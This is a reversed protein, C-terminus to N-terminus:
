TCTSHTQGTRQWGWTPYQHSEFLIADYMISFGPFEQTHESTRFGKFTSSALVQHLAKARWQTTSGRQQRELVPVTSLTQSCNYGRTSYPNQTCLNLILTKKKGFSLIITHMKVTSMCGLKIQMSRYQWRQFYM